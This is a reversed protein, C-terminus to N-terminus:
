VGAKVKASEVAVSSVVVVTLVPPGETSGFVVGIVWFPVPATM